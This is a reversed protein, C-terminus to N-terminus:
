GKMARHVSVSTTGIAPRGDDIMKCVCHLFRMSGNGWTGHYCGIIMEVFALCCDQKGQGKALIQRIREPAKRMRQELEPILDVKSPLEFGGDTM